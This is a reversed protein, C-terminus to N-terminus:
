RKMERVLLHSTLVLCRSPDSCSLASSSHTTKLLGEGIMKVGIGAIRGNRRRVDFVKM